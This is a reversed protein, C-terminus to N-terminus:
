GGYYKALVVRTLQEVRESPEYRVLTNLRRMGAENSLADLAMLAMTRRAEKKDTQYIELIKSTAPDLNMKGPYHAAYFIINSLAQEQIKPVPSDLSAVLQNGYATWWAPSKTDLTNQASSQLPIALALVFALVGLRTISHKM